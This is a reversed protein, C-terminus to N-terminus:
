ELFAESDHQEAAQASMRRSGLAGRGLRISAAALLGLFLLGFVASAATSKAAVSRGGEQQLIHAAADSQEFLRSTPTGTSAECIGSLRSCSLGNKCKCVGPSMSFMSGGVCETAGRDSSCEMM